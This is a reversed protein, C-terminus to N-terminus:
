DAKRDNHKAIAKQMVESLQRAQETPMTVRSVVQGQDQQQPHVFVFEIVTDVDTVSVVGIQAYTAGVFTGANVTVQAEKDKTIKSTSTPM